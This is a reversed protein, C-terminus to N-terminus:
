ATVAAGSSILAEIEGSSFGFEALVERTHQGLLPPPSAALGFPSPVLQLPGVTPHEVTATGRENLAELVGRVKGAPVGGRHAERGM